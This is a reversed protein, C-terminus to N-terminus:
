LWLNHMTLQLLKLIPQLYVAFLGSACCLKFLSQALETKDFVSVISFSSCLLTLLHSTAPPPAESSIDIFSIICFPPQQLVVDFFSVVNCLPNCLLTTAAHSLFHATVSPPRWLAIDSILHQLPPPLHPTNCNLTLFSLYVNLLLIDQQASLAFSKCM